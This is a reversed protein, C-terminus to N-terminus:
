AARGKEPSETEVGAIDDLAYGLMSLGEELYDPLLPTSVLYEAERRDRRQHALRLASPWEDKSFDGRGLWTLALIEILEDENLGEIAATLEERTPNDSTSELIAVEGDDSGNSGSEEDVPLVEADYERAKAIIFRLTELPLILKVM